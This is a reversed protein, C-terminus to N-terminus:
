NVEDDSAKDSSASLAGVLASTTALALTADRRSCFEPKGDGGVHLALHTGKGDPLKSFVPSGSM